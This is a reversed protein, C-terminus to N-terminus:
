KWTGKQQDLEFLHTVKKQLISSLVFCNLNSKSSKEIEPSVKFAIKEQLENVFVIKPPKTTYGFKEDIIILMQTDSDLCM